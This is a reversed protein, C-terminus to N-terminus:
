DINYNWTKVDDIGSDLSIHTQAEYAKDKLKNLSDLATVNAM